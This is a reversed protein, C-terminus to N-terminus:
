LAVVILLLLAWASVGAGMVTQTIAAATTEESMHCLAYAGHYILSCSAALAMLVAVVNFALNPVLLALSSLWLPIPTIGALMYADNTSIHTKQVAAVQRIFWGMGLVTLMETLFFIIAITGWPKGGFGGAFTDGYHTGAYYLLLPPLASLPLVLSLFLNALSPPVKELHLWSNRPALIMKPISLINM